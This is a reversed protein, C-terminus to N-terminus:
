SNLAADNGRRALGCLMSAETYPDLPGLHRKATIALMTILMINDVGRSAFVQMVKVSLPAASFHFDPLTLCVATGSCQKSSGPDDHALSRSSVFAQLETKM